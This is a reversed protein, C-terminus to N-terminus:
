RDAKQVAKMQRDEMEAEKRHLWQIKGHKANLAKCAQIGALVNLNPILIFTMQGQFFPFKLAQFIILEAAFLGKFQTRCNPDTEPPTNKLLFLPPKFSAQM